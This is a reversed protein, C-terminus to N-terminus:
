LRARVQQAPDLPRGYRRFEFHVHNGTANGTRGVNGIVDGQRVRQGTAVLNRSTHAYATQIGRGHDIVIMRGYGGSYGAFVVKGAAAAHIPTGRPARLDIGAHFRGYRRGFKSTVDLQKLPWVFSSSGPTSGGTSGWADGQNNSRAYGSGSDPMASPLFVRMGPELQATDIGPNALQLHEPTTLYLFAIAHINDGSKVIHYRARTQEIPPQLPACAGLAIMAALTIACKM